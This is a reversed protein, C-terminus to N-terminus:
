RRECETRVPIKHSGGGNRGGKLTGGKKLGGRGNRGAEREQMKEKKATRNDSERLDRERKVDTGPTLQQLLYGCAWDMRFPISCAADWGM